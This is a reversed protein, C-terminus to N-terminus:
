TWAGRSAANVILSGIAAVVLAPGFVVSTRRQSVAALLGVLAAGALTWVGLRWDVLGVIAGLVGALKVDGFGFWVPNILHLVLVTGGAVGAALLAEPRGTALAAWAALYAAIAM